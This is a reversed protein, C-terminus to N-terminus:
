GPFFPLNAARGLSADVAGGMPSQPRPVENANQPQLPNTGDSSMGQGPAQIDQAGGGAATQMATNQADMAMKQQMMQQQMMSPTKAIIADYDAKSIFDYINQRQITLLQELAMLQSAAAEPDQNRLSFILTIQNTIVPFLAMFTQKQIELSPMLMSDGDIIFEIYDSKHNHAELEGFLNKASITRPEVNDMIQGEPTFDFNLRLNPSAAAVMGTPIGDDGIVAQSEIFYNPNQKAFEALDEDSDIMFIKDVPYTQLM